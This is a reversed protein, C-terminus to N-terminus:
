LGAEGAIAIVANCMEEEKKEMDKVLAIQTRARDLNQAPRQTRFYTDGSLYDTLFRLGCEFTMTIAGLVLSGVEGSTLAHGSSGLFGKAFAIFYEMEMWVKSLDREDEAAPNTGFRVADGFDYACLGPMVTDLDIVCVGEGTADDIMVNNLKTDNHTVRLPLLGEAFKKALMSAYRKRDIFFAIEQSAGAARRMSDESVSKMFADFRKQTDRFGPITGHLTSADFGSLRYQFRGFAKGAAYMDKESRVVSYTKADTIFVYARWFNEDPDIYYVLGDQAPILTLTGRDRAEGGENRMFGTVNAINEMLNLPAKFVNLNIRQLIFRDAGDNQRTLSVLFTDNIHGDGYPAADLVGGDETFRRAARLVSERPIRNM